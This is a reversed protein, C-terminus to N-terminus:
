IYIDKYKPAIMVMYYIPWKDGNKENLLPFPIYSNVM